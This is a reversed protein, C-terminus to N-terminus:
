SVMLLKTLADFYDRGEFIIRAPEHIVYGKTQPRWKTLGDVIKDLNEKLPTLDSDPLFMETPFEYQSADSNLRMALFGFSVM